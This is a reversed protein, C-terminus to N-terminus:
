KFTLCSLCDVTYTPMTAVKEYLKELKAGQKVLDGTIGTKTVLLTRLGANSGGLIDTELTDGAMISKTRDANTTELAYDFIGAYPKGFWYVKGGIEQYFRGSSGQVLVQKGKSMYTLDPNACVVPKNQKLFECLVLAHEKFVTEGEDVTTAGYSGLYIFDAESINTTIHTLVDSFLLDNPQGLVFFRYDTKGTIKEFFGKKIESKFYVGSTIVDDFHEGEILGKKLQSKVFDEKLVTANSLLVIKKGNKKLQKLFDLTGDYFKEGDWLLGYIDLFYTDCDEIETVSKINKALKNISM